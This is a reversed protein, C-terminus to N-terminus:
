EVVAGNASTTSSRQTFGGAESQGQQRLTGGTGGNQTGRQAALQSAIAAVNAAQNARQTARFGEIEQPTFGLTMWNQEDPVGLAKHIQAVQAMTLENRTQADQWKTTIGSGPEVGADKGYAKNVRLALEMADAWSQGFVNQRKVARSVLGSELQKLSEGSPVDGGQPRLYYQPTRTVGSIAAVFAWVTELMPTLNAADIRKATGGYVELARGPAFNLEDVGDIDSDDQGVPAVSNPYELALIPFGSADAAAVLDLWTKNVANQLGIIQGIESGGPNAFEVVAVGLPAGDADVWPLPWSTDGEDQVSEWGSAASARRYKRIEGPLYVTKREIQKTGQNTMLTQWWYRTAMELKTPNDPDHRAVIGSVGDDLQHMTIRPRQEANDYAVMVYTLGDRLASIHVDSEVVDLRNAAWWGWLPDADAGTEQADVDFGIVSLREALTDIVPRCLNHAFPFADGSVLAGLYEQQRMTLLVPHDGDYYERLAQVRLEAAIQRDHAAQMHIYQELQAPALKSTDIM